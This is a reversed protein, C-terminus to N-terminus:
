DVGFEKLKREVFAATNEVAFLLEPKMHLHRRWESVETQLEAARNLIPMTNGQDTQETSPRPPWILPSQWKRAM